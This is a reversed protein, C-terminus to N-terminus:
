EVVVLLRDWVWEPTTIRLYYMGRELSDLEIEKQLYEDLLANTAVTQTQLPAGQPQFAYWTEFPAVANEEFEEATLAYLALDLRSVNTFQTPIRLTQGAALKLIRDRNLISFNPYQLGTTFGWVLDEGLEIDYDADQMFAPITIQYRTHPQFWGSITLTRDEADLALHELPPDIRLADGLGEGDMARNFTITVRDPVYVFRADRPPTSDVVYPRAVTTFQTRTEEVPPRGLWSRAEQSIAISITTSLPLGARPSFILTQDDRWAFNGGVGPELQISALTRARDMPVSFTIRILSNPLVDMAGSAPEIELVRPSQFPNPFFDLTFALLIGFLLFLIVALTIRTRAM